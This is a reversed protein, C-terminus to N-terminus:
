GAATYVQEGKESSIVFGFNEGIESKFIYDNGNIGLTVNSGPAFDEMYIKGTGVNGTKDIGDRAITSDFSQYALFTMSAATGFIFYFNDRASNNTYQESLNILNNKLQASSLGNFNASDITKSSEIKIEDRLYNIDPVRQSSVSNSITIFGAAISVIIIAAILYFQGKKNM